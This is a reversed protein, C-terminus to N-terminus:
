LGDHAKHRPNIALGITGAPRGVLPAVPGGQTPPQRKKDAPPPKKEPAGTSPNPNNPKRDNTPRPTSDALSKGPEFGAAANYPKGTKPDISNPDVPAGGNPRAEYHLHAGTSVGTNGTYGVVDGPKIKDGAKMGPPFGDLHGFRYQTGNADTAYVVNGYGKGVGAKNITLESNAYIPSGIPTAYDVGGHNSSAGTTPSKRPGFGSTQRAM